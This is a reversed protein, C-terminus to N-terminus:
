QKQQQMGHDMKWDQEDYREEVPTGVMGNFMDDDTIHAMPMMRDADDKVYDNEWKRAKEILDALRSLAYDADHEDCATLLSGIIARADNVCQKVRQHNEKMDVFRCWYCNKADECGHSGYMRQVVHCPGWVMYTNIKM